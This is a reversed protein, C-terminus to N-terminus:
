KCIVIYPNDDILATIKQGAIFIEKISDSTDPEFFDIPNFSFIINDNHIGRPTMFSKINPLNFYSSLSGNNYVINNVIDVAYCNYNEDDTIVFFYEQFPFSYLIYPIYNKSKAENRFNCNKNKRLKRTLRKPVTAKGLDLTFIKQFDSNMYEFLGFINPSNFYLKDTNKIFNNYNGITNLAYPSYSSSVYKEVIEGKSLNYLGIFKKESNGVYNRLLLVNDSDLAYIDCSAFSNLNYDEIFIGDYNYTCIRIANDIVYIVNENTSFSIVLSIEGPGKGVRLKNIYKGNSDFIYLNFDALIFVRDNILDAQIKQINGILSETNNEIKIIQSSANLQLKNEINAQLEITAENKKSCSVLFANFICVFMLYKLLKRLLEKM